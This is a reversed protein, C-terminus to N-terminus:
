PKTDQHGSPQKSSAYWSIQRAIGRLIGVDAAELGSRGLLRRLAFMMHRANQPSLFGIQLLAERLQSYMGEVQETSALRPVRAPEKDLSALLLEYCAIMVAQALNISHAAPDTPIRMLMHCPLLDEDLLGTDEPGFLLAVKQTRAHALIRPALTRASYTQTRYGGSKGTTGVVFHVGRLASGVSRYTRTSELLLKGGRALRDSEENRACEPSVLRLQSLGMNFMARAASGINGPHKTRVLVILVNSLRRDAM